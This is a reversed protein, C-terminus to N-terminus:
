KEKSCAVVCISHLLVFEKEEEVGFLQHANNSKAFESVAKISQKHQTSIYLVKSSYLILFLKTKTNREASENM